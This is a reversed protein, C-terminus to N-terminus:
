KVKKLTAGGAATSDITYKNGNKDYVYTRSEYDTYPVTRTQQEGNEDTYTETRTKQVAETHTEKHLGLDSYRNFLNLIADDDKKTKVSGEVMRVKDKQDKIVLSLYDNNASLWIDGKKHQQAEMDIQQQNIKNPYLTYKAGMEWETTKGSEDKVNFNFNIGSGNKFQVVDTGNQFVKENDIEIGYKEIEEQKKAEIEQQEALFNKYAETTNMYHTQLDLRDQENFKSNSFDAEDGNFTVGYNSLVRKYADKDWSKIKGNEDYSYTGELYGLANNGNGSISDQYDAYEDRDYQNMRQLHANNADALANRYSNEIGLATSQAVGQNAYGTQNLQNQTYKMANQKAVSAQIESNLLTRYSDQRMNEYLKESDQAM